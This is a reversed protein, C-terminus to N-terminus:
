RRRERIPIVVPSAARTDVDFITADRECEWTTVNAFWTTDDRWAGGDQHIHGYMHLLPAVVEVRARLDDCGARGFTPGEDGFGRPPGHTILVDCDDPILAWKAAM